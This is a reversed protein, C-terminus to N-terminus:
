YSQFSDWFFSFNWFIDFFKLFNWFIWFDLFRGFFGFFGFFIWFLFEFFGFFIKFPIQIVCGFTAFNWLTNWISILITLHWNIKKQLKYKKNQNWHCKIEKSPCDNTWQWFNQTWCTYPYFVNNETINAYYIKCLNTEDAGKELRIKKM